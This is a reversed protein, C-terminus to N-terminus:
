KTKKKPASKTRPATAKRQKPPSNAEGTEGEPPAKPSPRKEAKPKEEPKAKWKRLEVLLKRLKGLALGVGGAAAGVAVGIHEINGGVSDILAYGEYGGWATLGAGGVVVAARRTNAANTAFNLSTLLRLGVQKAREGLTRSAAIAAAPELLADPVDTEVLAPHAAAAQAMAASAAEAAEVAGATESLGLAVQNALIERARPYQGVFLRVTEALDALTAILDPAHEARGSESDYVRADTELSALSSVVLGIRLPTEALRQELRLLTAQLRADAQARALRDRLDEAKRRAEDLFDRTAERDEAAADEPAVAIREGKLTFSYLAARQILPTPDNHIPPQPLHARIWANAAKAGKQWESEPVAAFVLEYREGRSVGRLREEYWDIWVQWYGDAPLRARLRTWAETAWSPTAEPWLPADLVAALAAPNEAILFADVAAVAAVAATVVAAVAAVAAFAASPTAAASTASYAASAASAASASTAATYAASAANAAAHLGDARAPYKAAVRALATARFLAVTSAAFQRTDEPRYDDFLPLVRLAARAAIAVSVERPQTRLWAELGERTALTERSPALANPQQKPPKAM